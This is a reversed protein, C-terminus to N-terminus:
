KSKVNVKAGDALNSNGSIIIIDGDNLETQKERNGTILHSDINSMEVDVYTWVAEGDQYRFVVHFGDRLVVAEKPVVYQDAVARNLVIRVNMGEVLYDARNSVQAYIKIQGADDILPNIQTVRGVFNQKDDIFPTVNVEQGRSVEGLEAELLNFVVDFCSDDILTCLIEGSQDYIKSDLNAVRGAFPARIYCAELDREAQELADQVSNYGSTHRVYDLVTAPTDESSASSYGQGVLRDLLDIEAKEMERRSKHLAIEAAETNIVALLQGRNVRDGNAVLIQAIVGSSTFAINSKQLARLKGNCVIQKNFLQKSLSLTDVYIASVSQKDGKGSEDKSEGKSGSCSLTALALLTFIFIKKM